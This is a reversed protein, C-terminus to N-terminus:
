PAVVSPVVVCVLVVILVIDNTNFLSGGRSDHQNSKNLTNYQTDNHQTDNNPVDRHETYVSFTM